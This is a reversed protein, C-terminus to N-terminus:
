VSHGVQLALKRLKAEQEIKQIDGVALGVKASISTPIHIRCHRKCLYSGIQDTFLHVDHLYALQWVGSCINVSHYIKSECFYGFSM